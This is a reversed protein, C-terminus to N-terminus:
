TAKTSIMPMRAARLVLLPALIGIILVFAVYIALITWDITGM